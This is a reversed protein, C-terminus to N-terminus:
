DEEEDDDDDADVDFYSDDDEIPTILHLSSPYV